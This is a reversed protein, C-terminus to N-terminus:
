PKPAPAPRSRAAVAAEIGQVLKRDTEALLDLSTEYPKSDILFRVRENRVITPKGPLGSAGAAAPARGTTTVTADEFAILKGLFTKGESTTWQRLDSLTVYTTQAFKPQPQSAPTSGPRGSIGVPALDGTSGLARTGFKRPSAPVVVQAFASVSVVLTTFVPLARCLICRTKM